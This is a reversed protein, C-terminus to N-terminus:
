MKFRACRKCKQYQKRSSVKGSLENLVGLPYFSFNIDWLHDDIQKLAVPEHALAQSVHIFKGKWYMEGNHRIRKVVVDGDYEVEPIRIPYARHSVHYVSTPTKQGLAEHPRECNYDYKFEEFAQQQETLNFKPPVTAEEKLTRHMREHRGNQEPHGSVIREPRIGLKIFWVSLKSLGGLAASAFPNGNDTRIADPLGYERFTWEFWSQTEESTPQTLGRCLLLYRSYNDTVTLPYCLKGDGTNFQGKYDASWVMNPKECGLLPDTYPSVGRKAKRSRVLGQRKLILGATSIAPWHEEPRLSQLKAILKKPGFRQHKLKMEIIKDVIEPPTANPHKLPERSSEELGDLGKEQYRTIWKYVTPRSVLYLKSLETISFDSKLWDGILQVKQDM